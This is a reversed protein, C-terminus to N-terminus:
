SFFQLLILLGFCILASTMSTGGKKRLEETKIMDPKETIILEDVVKMSQKLYLNNGLFGLVIFSLPWVVFQSYLVNGVNYPNIVAITFGTAVAFISTAVFIYISQKYMKRYCFWTLGLFGAWFNFTYKEGKEFRDLKEVYYDGEHTFFSKYLEIRHM